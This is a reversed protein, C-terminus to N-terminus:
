RIFVVGDNRAAEATIWQSTGDSLATMGDLSAAIKMRVWPTHRIMRSFFGINLERAEAEMLGVATEVGADRLWALGQGAVLPNPDQM